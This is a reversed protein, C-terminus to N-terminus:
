WTGPVYSIIRVGALFAVAADVLAPRVRFVQM